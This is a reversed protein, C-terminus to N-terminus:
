GLPSASDVVGGRGIGALLPSPVDRHAESRPEAMIKLVWNTSANETDKPPTGSPFAFTESTPRLEVASLEEVWKKIPRLKHESLKQYLEGQACAIFGYLYPNSCMANLKDCVDAETLKSSFPRHEAVTAEVYFEDNDPTTALYDPSSWRSTTGKSDSM